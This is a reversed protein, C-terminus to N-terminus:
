SLCAEWGRRIEAGDLGDGILVLLSESPVSGGGPGLELWEYMAQVVVPEAHGACHLLGKARYLDQGRRGAVFRLWLKLAHLDLPRRSRLAVTSVGASHAAPPASALAARDLVIAPALLEGPPLDARVTERVEALGNVARVLARAEALATATVGDTHNLVILDAYALQEGVEPHREHQHALNGAHALTVIGALRYASSLGPDVLLTQAAPGPSALGSTEILVREPARRRGLLRRLTRSLDGRVTCCVCGNALEVLEDRVGVVLKGDIGESGYENVVVAIRESQRETLIRNLLTTKGAGLFGALLTVPVPETAAAV